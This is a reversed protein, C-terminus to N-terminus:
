QSEKVAVGFLIRGRRHLKTVANDRLVEVRWALHDIGLVGPDGAALDRELGHGLAHGVVLFVIFPESLLDRTQFVLTTAIRRRCRLLANSLILTRCM